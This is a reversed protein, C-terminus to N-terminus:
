LKHDRDPVWWLEDDIEEQKNQKLEEIQQEEKNNKQEEEDLDEENNGDEIEDIEVGDKGNEKVKNYKNVEDTINDNTTNKMMDDVEKTTKQNINGRTELDSSMYQRNVSDWRLEQFEILGAEPELNVAFDYENNGKINMIAGIAETKVEKGDNDLDVSTKMTGKGPTVTQAEVIKGNDRGVIIFENRSKSYALMAFGDYGRAEPVKDYFRKDTIKTCSEIDGEKLGLDQEVEKPDIKDKEEEKNEGKEEKENDEKETEGQKEELELKKEIDEKTIVSPLRKDLNIQKYYEKFETKLLEKYQDSFIIEGKENTIAISQGDKFFEFVTITKGDKDLMEKEAVVINNESLGLGNEDPQMFEFTDFEYFAKVNQRDLYKNKEGNTNEEIIEKEKKM